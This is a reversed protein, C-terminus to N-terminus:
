LIFCDGRTAPLCRSFSFVILSSLVSDRIIPWTSVLFSKFSSDLGTAISGMNAIVLIPHGEEM